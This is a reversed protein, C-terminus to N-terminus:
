LPHGIARLDVTELIKALEDMKRARGFAGMVTQYGNNGLLSADQKVAASYHEVASAVDGAQALQSAVQFRLRADDPKLKAIREYAARTKERDNAARYYDALSQQLQVSNPSREAQAELRAILERLKGSRGLVRIAEDRASEDENYYGPPLARRGAGR